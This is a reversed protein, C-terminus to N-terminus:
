FDATVAQSSLRKPAPAGEANTLLKSVETDAAVRRADSAILDAASLSSPGPLPRLASRSSLRCAELKTCVVPSWVTAPLLVKEPLTPMPEVGLAQSVFLRAMSM